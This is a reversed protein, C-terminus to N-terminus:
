NNYMRDLIVAGTTADEFRLTLYANTPQTGIAGAFGLVFSYNGSNSFCFKDNIDEPVTSITYTPTGGQYTYDVLVGSVLYQYSLIRVCINTIPVGVPNINLVFSLQRAAANFAISQQAPNFSWGQWLYYSTNNFWTDLNGAQCYVPFGTQGCGLQFYPPITFRVTMSSGKTEIVSSPLFSLCAAINYVCYNYTNQFTYAKNVTNIYSITYDFTGGQATFSIRSPTVANVTFSGWDINVTKDTYKQNIILSEWQPEKCKTTHSVYVAYSDYKDVGVRCTGDSGTVSSVTRTQDPYVIWVNANPLPTQTCLVTINVYDQPTATPLSDFPAGPPQKKNCSIIIILVAIILFRMLLNKMKFGGLLKM